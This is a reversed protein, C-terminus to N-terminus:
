EVQPNALRPSRWPRRKMGKGVSDLVISPQDLTLTLGAGVMGHNTGMSRYNPAADGADFFDAIPAFMAELSPRSRRIVLDTVQHSLAVHWASVRVQALTKLAAARSTM